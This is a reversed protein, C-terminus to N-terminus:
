LEPFTEILLYEHCRYPMSGIYVYMGGDFSVGGPPERPTPPRAAPPRLLNGCHHRRLTRAARLGALACLDDLTRALAPSSAACPLMSPDRHETVTVNCAMRSTLLTDVKDELQCQPALTICASRHYGRPLCQLNAVTCCVRGVSETKM